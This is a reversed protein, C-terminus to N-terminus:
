GERVGRGGDVVEHAAVALDYETGTRGLGLAATASVTFRHRCGERVGAGTAMHRMIRGLAPRGPIGATECPLGSSLTRLLFPHPM